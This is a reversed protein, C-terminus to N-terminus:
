WREFVLSGLMRTFTKEWHNYSEMAEAKSNGKAGCSFIWVYGPTYTILWMGKLFTKRDLTEHSHETIAFYAPHNNVMATKTEIIRFDPFASGLMMRLDDAAIPCNRIENDLTDQSEGAIEPAARIVMNCNARPSGKPAFLTVVVHEGRPTGKIWNPPYLFRFKYASNRHTIWDSQALVATAPIVFVLLGIFLIFRNHVLINM